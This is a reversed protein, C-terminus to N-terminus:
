ITKYINYFKILNLIESVMVKNIVRLKKIKNLHKM